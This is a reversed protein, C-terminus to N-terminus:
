EFCCCRVGSDGAKGESDEVEVQRAKMWLDDDVQRRESSDIIRPRHEQHDTRKTGTKNAAISVSAVLLTPCVNQISTVNFATNSTTALYTTSSKKMLPVKLKLIYGINTINLQHKSCIEGFIKAYLVYFQTSVRMRGIVKSLVGFTSFQVAGVGTRRNRGRRPEEEQGREEQRKPELKRTVTFTTCERQPHHHHRTSPTPAPPPAPQKLTTSPTRHDITIPSDAELSWPTEGKSDKRKREISPPLSSSDHRGVPAVYTNRERAVTGLLVTYTVCTARQRSSLVANASTQLFIQLYQLKALIDFKHEYRINPESDKIIQETLSQNIGGNRLYSM